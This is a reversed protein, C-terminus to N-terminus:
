CIIITELCCRCYVSPTRPCWFHKTLYIAIQRQIKIKSAESRYAEYNPATEHYRWWSTTESYSGRGLVGDHAWCLRHWVESTEGTKLRESSGDMAAGQESLRWLSRYIPSLVKWVWCETEKMNSTILHFSLTSTLLRMWSHESSLSPAHCSSGHASSEFGHSQWNESEIKAEDWLKLHTM